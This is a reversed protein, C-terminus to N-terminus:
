GSVYSASPLPHFISDSSQFTGSVVNSKNEQTKLNPNLCVLRYESSRVQIPSSHTCHASYHLLSSPPQPINPSTHTCLPQGLICHAARRYSIHARRYSIHPPSPSCCTLRAGEQESWSCKRLGLFGSPSKNGLNIKM